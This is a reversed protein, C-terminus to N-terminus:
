VCVQMIRAQSGESSSWCFCWCWLNGTPQLSGPGPCAAMHWAAELAPPVGPEQLPGQGIGPGSLAEESPSVADGGEDKSQLAPSTMVMGRRPSSIEATIDASNKKILIFLNGSGKDCEEKRWRAVRMKLKEWQNRREKQQHLLKGPWQGETPSELLWNWHQGEQCVGLAVFPFWQLPKTSRFVLQLVASPPKWELSFLDKSLGQIGACSQVAFAGKSDNGQFWLKSYRWKSHPPPLLSQQLRLLLSLTGERGRLLYIDRHFYLASAWSFRRSVAPLDSMAKQFWLLCICVCCALLLINWDGRQPLTQIHWLSVCALSSQAATWRDAAIFKDRITALLKLSSLVKTTIHKEDQDTVAISM